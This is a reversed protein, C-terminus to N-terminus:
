SLSAISEFSEVLGAITFEVLKDLSLKTIDGRRYIRGDVEVTTKFRVLADEGIVIVLGALLTAYVKIISDLVRIVGTDLGSYEKSNRLDYLRLLAISRAINTSLNLYTDCTVGPKMCYIALARRLDRLHELTLPDHLKIAARFPNEIIRTSM